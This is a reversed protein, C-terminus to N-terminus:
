GAPRLARPWTGGLARHIRIRNAVLNAKQRVLDLELGQVSLLQTLVPLYETLGSRYREGAEQLAKQATDRQQELAAVHERQKQESILADEVEKVARVVTERYRWLAEDAAARVRDVEAARRRGDAIPAALSGALRVLWNDFLLDADATGVSAAAGLRIAPLRAARAAAVQFRAARLRLGDSRVDPRHALLDAPLGVSPIDAPIPLDTRRIEAAAGPSRGMLLALANAALRREREVIPIQAMVRDITQQQQYVDLASVLGNRFRLDVLELITRNNALQEDLLRRQMGAAIGDVWQLAVEAAVSVAAAALQERSAEAELRAAESQSRIGGWLDIEYGSVLSLAYTDGSLLTAVSGNDSRQRRLVADGQLSLDPVLAAGAKVAVADAQRLRTWAQRIGFNDSLAAEVMRDLDPDDFAKWWAQPPSPEPPYLTYTRPLIGQLDGEAVPDLLPGCGAATTLWVVIVLGWVRGAMAWQISSVM